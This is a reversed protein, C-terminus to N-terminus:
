NFADGSSSPSNSLGRISISHIEDILKKYNCTPNRRLRINSVSTKGIDYRYVDDPQHDDPLPNNSYEDSICKEDSFGSIRLQYTGGRAFTYTRTGQWNDFRRVHEVLEISPISDGILTIELTSRSSVYCDFTLVDGKSATFDYSKEFRGKETTHWDDLALDAPLNSMDAISDLVNNKFYTIMEQESIRKYMYFVEAVCLCSLFLCSLFLVVLRATKSNKRQEIKVKQEKESFDEPQEEEPELSVFFTHDITGVYNDDYKRSDEKAKLIITNLVYSSVGLDRCSKLFDHYDKKIKGSKVSINILEILDRLTLSKKSM